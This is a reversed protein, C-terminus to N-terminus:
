GNFRGAGFLRVGWYITYRKIFGMGRAELGALMEDDAVARPVDGTQYRYDHLIFIDIYDSQYPHGLIRWLFRPISAGDTIFGAPVIDFPEVVEYLDGTLAKLVVNYKPM